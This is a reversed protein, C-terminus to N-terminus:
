PVGDEITLAFVPTVIQRLSATRSGYTYYLHIGGPSNTVPTAHARALVKIRRDRDFFLLMKHSEPGDLWSVRYPGPNLFARGIVVRHDIQIAFWHNQSPGHWPNVTKWDHKLDAWRAGSVVQLLSVLPGYECQNVNVVVAEQNRSEYWFLGIPYHFLMSESFAGIINLNAPVAVMTRDVPASKLLMMQKHFLLDAYHCGSRPMQAMLTSRQSEKEDFYVATLYQSPISFVMGGVKSASEHDAFALKLKIGSQATITGTKYEVIWRENTLEAKKSASGILRLSPLSVIVLVLVLNQAALNWINRM